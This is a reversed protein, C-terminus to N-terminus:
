GETLEHVQGMQRRRQIEHAIAKNEKRLNDIENALYQIRGDKGRLRFLLEHNLFLCM